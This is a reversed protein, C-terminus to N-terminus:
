CQCCSQLFNLWVEGAVTKKMLVFSNWAELFAPLWLVYKFSFDRRELRKWFHLPKYNFFRKIVNRGQEPDMTFNIKLFVFMERYPMHSFYGDFSFAGPGRKAPTKRCYIRWNGVKTSPSSTVTEELVSVMSLFGPCRCCFFFLYIVLLSFFYFFFQIELVLQLTAWWFFNCQSKIQQTKTKVM